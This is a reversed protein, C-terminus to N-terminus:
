RCLNSYYEAQMEIDEDTLDKAIQSMLPDTRAGDRFAKLQNSLYTKNQGALNPWESNASIGLAGHCATCTAAQNRGHADEAPLCNQHKEHILSGSSKLSAYHSAIIRIDEPNLNKVLPDMVANQRVGNKFATIQLELYGHKQGALTPWHDNNSVGEIGHCAACSAVLKDATDATAITQGHLNLVVIVLLKFIPALSFKIM